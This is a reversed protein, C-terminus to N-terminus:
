TRIRNQKLMKGITSNLNNILESQNTIISRLNEVESNFGNRMNSPSPMFPSIKIKVYWVEIVESAHIDREEYFNNDSIMRLHGDDKIRNVLRKVYVDNQTVLVYIYGNKISHVWQDKEIYSCVIKDGEFLSPEMSDGSVSFSRYTGHNTDFDPLSFTQLEQFYTPDTLQGGYGAQAPVPVHVIREKQQHDTVVTLVYDSSKVEENKFMEGKGSFLFDANINYIEIAKRLLEITVDRRGKVIESLSQPLYELSLAFQRSSRVLNSSLLKDHCRIFRQTVVSNM